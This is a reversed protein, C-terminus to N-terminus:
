EIIVDNYQLSINTKSVDLEYLDNLWKTGDFGGFVVIKNVKNVNASHRQRCIPVEHPNELSPVIWKAKELDFIM